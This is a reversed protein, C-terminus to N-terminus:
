AHFLRIMFSPNLTQQLRRQSGVSHWPPRLTTLNKTAFRTNGLHFRMKLTQLKTDRASVYAPVDDLPIGVISIAANIPIYADSLQALSFDHPYGIIPAFGESPWLPPTSEAVRFIDPRVGVFQAVVLTRAPTADVISGIM